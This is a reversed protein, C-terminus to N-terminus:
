KNGKTRELHNSREAPLEITISLGGLKSHCAKINGGQGEIMKKCISLGLGSGGLKRNRSHDIRYLYDFLKPLTETPVGPGSDEVQLFIKDSTSKVSILVEAQDNTYKVMNTFINDLVQDFRTPDIYVPCEDKDYQINVKFAKENFRSEHRDLADDLMIKLDVHEKHYHINDLEANCLDNLDNILKQLHQIEQQVSDINENSKERIGDSMAELEAKAIALPTRLEHSISSIWIKRANENKKLTDALKKVNRALTGIEDKSETHVNVNYNGASMASSANLLRKIPRVFHSALPVSVAFAIILMIGAIILYTVLQNKRFALDVGETLHKKEPIGIWGILQHNFRIEVKNDSDKKRGIIPDQNVNLLSLHLLKGPGPGRHDPPPRRQEQYHKSPGEDPYNADLHREHPPRRDDKPPYEHQPGDHPPGPRPPKRKHKKPPGYHHPPPHAFRSNSESSFAELELELLEFDEILNGARSEDNIERWLEHNQRLSQLDQKYAYYRKLNEILTAVSKEDRENIYAIMGRDFTWQLLLYMAGIILTATVLLALILKSQIQM